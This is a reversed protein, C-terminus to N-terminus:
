DSLSLRNLPVLSKASRYLFYAGALLGAFQVSLIQLPDGLLVPILLYFVLVFIAFLEFWWLHTRLTMDGSRRVIIPLLLAGALTTVFYPAITYITQIIALIRTSSLGGVPINGTTFLFYMASSLNLVVGGITIGWLIIRLQSWRLTDRLLPDSRRAALASADIAYFGSIFPIYIVFFGAYPVYNEQGWLYLIVNGSIYTLINNTIYTLVSGTIIVFGISLGILVIGM